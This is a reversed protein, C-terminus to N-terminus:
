KKKHKHIEALEAFLAEEEENLNQPLIVKITVYLNGYTDAQQYDPMGLGKMRFVKGNETYKPITLQVDGKFTSVTVKGGLMAVYLDLALDMSLDNETRSFRTNPAINIKVLLEGRNGDMLDKGKGKIRLIQGDAIGPKIKISLIENFIDIKQTTGNYAEELSLNIETHAEIKNKGEQSESSQGGFFQKFFDSVNNGIDRIGDKMGDWIDNVNINDFGTKEFQQWNAGLIDYKRRKAPDNLVTYAESVQKFKEEAKKDDPNKDPHFEIALKRYAKKIEEATANRKVGLIKYYDIYQMEGEPKNWNDSSQIALFLNLKKETNDYVVSPHFGALIKNLYNILTIKRNM